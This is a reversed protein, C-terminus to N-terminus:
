FGVELCNTKSEIPSQITSWKTATCKRQSEKVPFPSTQLEFDPFGRSFLRQVGMMAKFGFTKKTPAESIKKKTKTTKTSKTKASFRLVHGDAAGRCAADGHLKTSVDGWLGRLVEAAQASSLLSPAFRALGKMEFSRGEMAHDRIEHALHPNPFCFFGDLDWEFGELVKCGFNISFLSM